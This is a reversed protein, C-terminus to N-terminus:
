NYVMTLLSYVREFFIKHSYFDGFVSKYEYLVIGNKDVFFIKPLVVNWQPSQATNEDLTLLTVNKSESDIMSVLNYSIDNDIVKIANPFNQAIEKLIPLEMDLCAGCYENPFVLVLNLEDDLDINSLYTIIVDKSSEQSRKVENANASTNYKLEEITINKIYNTYLLIINFIITLILLISLKNKNLIYNM